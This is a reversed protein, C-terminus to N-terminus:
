TGEQPISRPGTFPYLAPGRDAPLDGSSPWPSLCPRRHFHTLLRVCGNAQGLSPLPGM